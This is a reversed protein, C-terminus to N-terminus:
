HVPHLTLEGMTLKSWVDEGLRAKLCDNTLVDAGVMGTHVVVFFGAQELASKVSGILKTPVDYSINRDGHAEGIGHIIGEDCWEGSHAKFIAHAKQDLPCGGDDNAKYIASVTSAILEDGIDPYKQKLDRTVENAMQIAEAHTGSGRPRYLSLGSPGDIAVCWVGDEVRKVVSISVEYGKAAMRKPKGANRKMARRVSM